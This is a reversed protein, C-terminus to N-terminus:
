EDGPLATTAVRAVLRCVKGCGKGGIKKGAKYAAKRVGKKLKQPVDLVDNVLDVADSKRKKKGKGM